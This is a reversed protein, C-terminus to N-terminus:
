HLLLPHGECGYHSLFLSKCLLGQLEKVSSQMASFCIELSLDNQCFQDKLSFFTQIRSKLKDELLDIQPSSTRKIVFNKVEKSM